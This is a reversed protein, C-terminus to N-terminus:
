PMQALVEASSSRPLLAAGGAVFLWIEAPYGALREAGGVGLLEPAFLMLVAGLLGFAAVVVGFMGVRTHRISLGLLLVAVTGLPLNVVGIMHLWPDENEPTAGVLVKGAGALIVLLVGLSATGTVPWVSRLLAVGTITLLGALIFAGNMVGALPSCVHNSMFQGCATNGLDGISNDRWSYPPHWQAAVVFQAVFYQVSAVIWLFGGIAARREANTM